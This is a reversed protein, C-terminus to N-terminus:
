KKPQTIHPPMGYEPLVIADVKNSALREIGVKLWDGGVEGVIPVALSDALANFVTIGIRLGTFSGPGRFIVLGKIDEFKCNNEALFTELQELLELALRREALWNKDAVVSSDRVLFMKCESTSTDIALIM